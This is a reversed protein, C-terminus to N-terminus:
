AGENFNYSQEIHKKIEELEKKRMKFIYDYVKKCEECIENVKLNDYQRNYNRIYDMANQHTKNEEIMEQMVVAFKKSGLKIIIGCIDCFSVQM